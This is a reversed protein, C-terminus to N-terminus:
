WPDLSRKLARMVNITNAGLEKTLCEQAITLLCFIDIFIGATVKKGLGIGHEGQEFNINTLCYLSSTCVSVTGDMKLAMVMMNDVCQAVAAKEEAIDPNYMVAQHFNGDGVHGLM